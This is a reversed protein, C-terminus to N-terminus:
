FLTLNCFSVYLDTCMSELSGFAHADRFTDEVILSSLQRNQYIQHLPKKQSGISGLVIEEVGRHSQRGRTKQTKKHSKVNQEEDKLSILKSTNTRKFPKQWDRHVLVLPRDPLIVGQGEYAFKIM